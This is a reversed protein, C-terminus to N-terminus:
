MLVCGCSGQACTIGVDGSGNREAEPPGAVGDRGDGLPPMRVIPDAVQADQHGSNERVPVGKGDGSIEAAAESEPQGPANSPSPPPDAKAPSCAGADEEPATSSTSRQAQQSRTPSASVSIQAAGVIAHTPTVGESNQVFPQGALAPTSSTAEAAPLGAISSVPGDTLSLPSGCDSDDNAEKTDQRFNADSPPTVAVGSSGGSGGDDVNRRPHTPTATPPAPEPPEGEDGGARREPEGEVEVEQQREPESSGHAWASDMLGVSALSPPQEDVTALAPEGGSNQVSAEAAKAPSAPANVPPSNATFSLESENGSGELVWEAEVERALAEWDLPVEVEEAQDKALIDWDVPPTAGDAEAPAVDLTATGNDLRDETFSSIFGDSMDAAPEVSSNNAMGDPASSSLGVPAEEVLTEDDVISNGHEVEEGRTGEDSREKEDEKEEEEEEEEEKWEEEEGMEVDGEEDSPLGPSVASKIDDMRSGAALHEEDVTMQEAVDGEENQGGGQKEETESEHNEARIVSELGVDHEVGEEAMAKEVVGRAEEYVMWTAAELVQEESARVGTFGERAEVAVRACNGTGAGARAEGTDERGSEGKDEGRANPLADDNGDVLAVEVESGRVNGAAEDGGQGGPGKQASAEGYTGSPTVIGGEWVHSGRENVDVAAVDERGSAGANVEEVASTEGTALVTSAEGTKAKVPSRGASDVGVAARGPSGDDRHFGQNDALRPLPVEEQRAEDPSAEAGSGVGVATTEREADAPDVPHFAPETGGEPKAEEESTSGPATDTARTTESVSGLREQQHVVGPLNPEEGAGSTERPDGGGEAEAEMKGSTEASTEGRACPAVGSVCANNTDMNEATRGQDGQDVITSGGAAADCVSPSESVAVADVSTGRTDSGVFVTLADDIAAPATDAALAAASEEENGVTSGVCAGTEPSSPLGGPPEPRQATRKKISRHGDYSGGGTTSDNNGDNGGAVTAAAPEGEDVVMSSACVAATEPSSPRGGSSSQRLPEDGQVGHHSECSDVNNASHKGDNGSTAAAAVATTEEEDYFVSSECVDGTEPSSPQGGPREHRQPESRDVVHHSDDTEDCDTSGNGNYGADSSSDNSGGYGRDFICPPVEEQARSGVPPGESNGPTTEPADPTEVTASKDCSAAAQEEEKLCEGAEVGIVAQSGSTNFHFSSIIARDGGDDDDREAGPRPCAVGAGDKGLSNSSGNGMDDDGGGRDVDAGGVGDGNDISARCEREAGSTSLLGDIKLAVGSPLVLCQDLTPGGDAGPEGQQRKEGAMLPKFPLLSTPPVPASARRPRPSVSSSTTEIVMPQYPSFSFDASSKRGRRGSASRRRKSSSSSPVSPGARPRGATAAGGASLKRDDPPRITSGATRRPESSAGFGPLPDDVHQRSIAGRQGTGVSHRRPRSTEMDM